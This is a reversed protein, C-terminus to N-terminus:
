GPNNGLITSVQTIVDQPIVTVELTINTDNQAFDWGSGIQFLLLTM